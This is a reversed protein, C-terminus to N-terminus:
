TQIVELQEACTTWEVRGKRNLAEGADQQSQEEAVEGKADCDPTINLLRDIRRKKHDAVVNRGGPALPPRQHLCPWVHRRLRARCPNCVAPIEVDGHANRLSESGEEGHEAPEVDLVDIAQAVQAVGERARQHLCLQHHQQRRVNREVLGVHDEHHEERVHKKYTSPNARKVISEQKLVGRPLKKQRCPLYGRQDHGGLSDDNAYSCRAEDEKTQYLHGEEDEDVEAGAAAARM